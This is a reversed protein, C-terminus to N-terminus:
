KTCATWAHLVVGDWACKVLHKWINERVLCPANMHRMLHMHAELVIQSSYAQKMPASFSCAYRCTM